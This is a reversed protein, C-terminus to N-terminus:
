DKSNSNFVPSLILKAMIMLGLTEQTSLLPLEFIPVAFSNWLLMVIWADICLIVAVFIITLIVSLIMGITDNNNM